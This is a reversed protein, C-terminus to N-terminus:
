EAEETVGLIEGVYMTHTDGGSYYRNMLSENEIREEDLDARFLIRCEIHYKCGSFGNQAGFRSQFLTTSLARMKDVDRGSQTGCFAIAESMTGLRPVSVTFTDAKSLLDHTFRSERVYVTFTKKGWLIGFQAWGITMPNDAVMLFAGKPLQQMTENMWDM